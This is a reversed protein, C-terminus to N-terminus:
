KRTDGNKVKAKITEHEQDAPFRNGCMCEIEGPASRLFRKGCADCYYIKPM